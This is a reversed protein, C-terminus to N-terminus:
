KFRTKELLKIGSRILSNIIAPQSSAYYKNYFINMAQYFYYRSKQNTSTSSSKIGARHKLHTAKALPYYWIQYGKQRLRYCLDLDEGYMFYDEDFYGVEKLASHPSLFYAGSIADVQHPHNLNKYMQHYGSFYALFPFLKELKLFYTLSNWPTPFGRHCAWDLRGSPLLLKPSVAGINKKKQIFNLLIKITASTTQIDSNLLLNYKAQSKRLAINNAKAFGLNQKNFIFHLPYPQLKAKLAKKEVASSNNDVVTIQWNSPMDQFISSVLNYTLEATNYNLIIIELLPKSQNM